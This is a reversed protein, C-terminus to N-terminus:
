VCFTQGILKQTMKLLAEGKGSKYPSKEQHILVFFILQNQFREMQHTLNILFIWKVSVTLLLSSFIHRPSVVPLTTTYAMLDSSSIYFLLASFILFPKCLTYPGMVLRLHNPLLISSMKELKGLGYHAIKEGFSIVQSM